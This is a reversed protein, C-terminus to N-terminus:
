RPLPKEAVAFPLDRAPAPGAVPRVRGDPRDLDAPGGPLADLEVDCLTM